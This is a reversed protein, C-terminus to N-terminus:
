PLIFPPLSFISLFIEIKKIENSRLEMGRLKKMIYYVSEPKEIPNIEIYRKDKIGKKFIEQFIGAEGKKILDEGDVLAKKFLSGVILLM